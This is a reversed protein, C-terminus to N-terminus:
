IRKKFHKTESMWLMWQSPKSRGLAPGAGVWGGLGGAGNQRGLWGTGAPPWTLLPSVDTIVPRWLLLWKWFLHSCRISGPGPPATEPLLVPLVKEQPWLRAFLSGWHPHKHPLLQSLLWCLYPTPWQEWLCAWCWRPIGPKAQAETYKRNLCQSMDSEKLGEHVTARWAGRDMPNELCSYQLLNGNEGGPSRGSGPISGGANALLYKVVWAM